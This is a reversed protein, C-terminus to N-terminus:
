HREHHSALEQVAKQLDMAITLSSEKGPTLHEFTRPQGIVLKLKKPRPISHHRSWAAYAGELHCPLVPVKRGALLAGIGPKFAGMEGSSTRTGEPFIVLVNGPTEILKECLCISQRVHMQRSFPLANIVVAAFWTRSVNRFFYDEAAAPFVRHLKRLPLASVLCLADLHSSHNAVMVFSGGSPLNERGTIELRHYLRLWVRLCVAAFSRLLYVSIDPERPFNRLREIMPQELDEATEYRWHKM